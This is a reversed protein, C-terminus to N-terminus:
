YYYLPTSRSEVFVAVKEKIWTRLVRTFIEEFTIIPTSTNTALPGMCIVGVEEEDCWSIM